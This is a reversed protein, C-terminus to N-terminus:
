GILFLHCTEFVLDMILQSHNFILFLLIFEVLKFQLQNFVKRLCLSVLNTLKLQHLM